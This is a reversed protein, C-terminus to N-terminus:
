FKTHIKIDKTGSILFLISAPAGKGGHVRTAAAARVPDFVAFTGAVAISM